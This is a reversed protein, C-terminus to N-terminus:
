YMSLRRYLSESALVWNKNRQLIITVNGELSTKHLVQLFLSCDEAPCPLDGQLWLQGPHPFVSEQLSLNWLSNKGAGSLFSGFWLVRDSM